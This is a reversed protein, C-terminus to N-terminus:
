QEGHRDGKQKLRVRVAEKHAGLGESEAIAAIAEGDRALAERSYAIVSSRKVFDDVGLPSFFRATGNTPLVHNPGAFYDGVVEPSYPGLFVAGAHKVKGLVHWPDRVILELHEPALRNVVDVGTSLDPVVCIAGHNGISQRAIEARELQACQEVVEAAVADALAESPTVLIASALPDHEAQSLLDAAVWAPEATEDALVVIESPGAIMDIDVMGFVARKALAVYINGPGVIKDVRPISATGYAFAAIAQAGGVKYMETVGAIDAAVLIAPHVGGDRDPPTVMAIRSVGAVKAPLVNMLVSSPYAARGGPVYVGVSALPRVLQGLVTGDEEPEFWSARKQREHFRRIREAAKKLSQVVQQDVREYAQVVEERTVALQALTVGDLAETWRRVAGDGEEKVSSVIQEVAERQEKTGMDTERRIDLAEATLRRM